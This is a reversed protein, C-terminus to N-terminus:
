VIFSLWAVLNHYKEDETFENRFRANRSLGTPSSTQNKTPGKIEKWVENIRVAFARAISCTTVPEGSGECTAQTILAM